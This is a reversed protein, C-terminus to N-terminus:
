EPAALIETKAGRGDRRPKANLGDVMCRVLLCWHVSLGAGLLGGGGFAV